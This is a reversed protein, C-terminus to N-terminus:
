EEVFEEAAIKGLWAAPAPGGSAYSFSRGAIFCGGDPAPLIAYLSKDRNVQPVQWSSIAFGKASFRRIEWPPCLGLTTGDACRALATVGQASHSQCGHVPPLGGGQIVSMDADFRAIWPERQGPQAEVYGGLLNEGNELSVSCLPVAWRSHPHASFDGSHLVEGESDLMYFITVAGKSRVCVALRGAGPTGPVLLQANCFEEEPVTFLPHPESAPAAGDVTVVHAQRHADHPNCSSYLIHLKEGEGPALSWRPSDADLLFHQWAQQHAATYGTLVAQPRTYHALVYGGTHSLLADHGHDAVFQLGGLKGRVDFGLSWTKLSHQDLGCLTFLGNESSLLSTGVPSFSGPAVINHTWEM